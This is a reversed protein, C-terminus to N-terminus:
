WPKIEATPIPLERSWSTHPAELFLEVLASCASSISVFTTQLSVLVMLALPVTPVSKVVRVPERRAFVPLAKM